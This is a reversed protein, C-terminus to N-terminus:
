FSLRQRFIPLICRSICNDDCLMPLFVVLCSLITICYLVFVSRNTAIYACNCSFKARIPHRCVNVQHCFLILYMSQFFHFSTSFQLSVKSKFSHSNRCSEAEVIKGSWMSELFTSSFNSVSEALLNCLFCFSVSVGVTNSFSEIM